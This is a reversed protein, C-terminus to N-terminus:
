HTLALIVGQTFGNCNRSQTLDIQVLGVCGVCWHVGRVWRVAGMAGCRHCRVWRVAGVYGDCRVWTGMAGCGGVWRVAGVYWLLAGMSLMHEYGVHLM